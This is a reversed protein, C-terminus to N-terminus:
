WLTEANRTYDGNIDLFYSIRNATLSKSKGLVLYENVEDGIQHDTESENKYAGYFVGTNTGKLEEPNYGQLLYFSSYTAWCTPRDNNPIYRYTVCRLHLVIYCYVEISCHTNKLLGAWSSLKQLPHTEGSSSIKSFVWYHFIPSFETLQSSFM